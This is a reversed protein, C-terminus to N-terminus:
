PPPRLFPPLNQIRIIPLGETKWHSPKFAYGNIYDAVDGLKVVEWDEPILGIETEKYKIEESMNFGWSM